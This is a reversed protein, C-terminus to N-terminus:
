TEVSYQPQAVYGSVSLTVALCGVARLSSCELYFLSLLMFRQAHALALPTMHM